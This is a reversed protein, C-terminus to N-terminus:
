YNTFSINSTTYYWYLENINKEKFIINLFIFNKSLYTM